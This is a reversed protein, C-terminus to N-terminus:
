LYDKVIRSIFSFDDVSLLTDDDETDLLYKDGSRYLLLFGYEECASQVDPCGINGSKITVPYKKGEELKM